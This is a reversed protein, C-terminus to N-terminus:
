AVELLHSALAKAQGRIEPIATTEWLTGRLATGLTFLIESPEGDINKLKGDPTAALGLNLEDRCIHGDAILGRILPSDLRMYNAESGICNILVDANLYSQEGEAFYNVLFKGNEDVSIHKLRGSLIELNGESRLEFLREAAAPPMRHRAVNWYRSLHQMFYRKEATPLTQWVEQTIPRLTDIVARWDSGNSEAATIHRRVARFIDTIRTQGRVEDFFPEYHYGLKHVAPVLGRTSIAKIKGRHGSSNLRLVVDVMSLGTGVILVEDDPSLNEFAGDAWVDHIYKPSDIFRLDPVSPHPPLFNGFALVVRDAEIVDGSALKIKALTEATEIGCVEDRLIALEVGDAAAEEAESLLASLYKGFLHRPVFDHADYSRGNSNLWTLFNDPQDPFAGMKAAPVNLVHDDNESSFAVGRGVESRKEILYIQLPEKANKLLNIALLTGSAGGGIIAIRRM